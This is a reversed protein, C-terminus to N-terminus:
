LKAREQSIEKEPQGVFTAFFLSDIRFLVIPFVEENRDHLAGRVTNKAPFSEMGFHNLKNGLARMGDCVEGM